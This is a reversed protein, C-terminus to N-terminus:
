RKAITLGIFTSNDRRTVVVTTARDDKSFMLMQQEGMDVTTEQSWGKGTMAKKYAAVVASPEDRSTLSVSSGATTRVVSEVRAGKYVLVDSPFDAPIRAAKGSAMTMEGDKTKISIHEDSIDVDAKGGTEREIVKELVTEEAKRRCGVFAVVM